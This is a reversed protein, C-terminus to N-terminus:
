QVSVHTNTSDIDPVIAKAAAIDANGAATDGAQLEMLGRVYLAEANKPDLQLARDIDAKAETSRNLLVLSIARNSYLPAIDPAIKIAATYEDVAKDYQHMRKYVIARNNHAEWLTPTWKLAFNFAELAHPYDGEELYAAGMNQYTETAADRTLMHALLIKQCAAIRRDPTWKQNYCGEADQFRGFSPGTALAPSALAALVLFTWFLNKM